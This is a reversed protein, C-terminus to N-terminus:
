RHNSGNLQCLILPRWKCASHRLICFFWSKIKTSQTDQQKTKNLQITKHTKRYWINKGTDTLNNVVFVV